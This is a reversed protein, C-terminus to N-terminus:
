AAVGDARRLQVAPLPRECPALPRPDRAVAGGQRRGDRRPPAHQTSSRAAFRAAQEYIARMAPDRVIVGPNRASIPCCRDTPKHRVVVSTTGFFISDGVALAAESRASTPREVDGRERGSPRTRAGANRQREWIKSRSLKPQRAPDRPQALGIPRRHARASQEGRGITVTGAKPLALDARRRGFLRAARIGDGCAGDAATGPYGLCDAAEKIREFLPDPQVSSTCPAAEETM